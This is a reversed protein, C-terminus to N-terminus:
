RNDAQLLAIREVELLMFFYFPKFWFVLSQRTFFQIVCSKFLPIHLTQMRALDGM